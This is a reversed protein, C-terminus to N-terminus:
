LMNGSLLVRDLILFLRRADEVFAEGSVADWLSPDIAVAEVELDTLDAADTADNELMGETGSDIM